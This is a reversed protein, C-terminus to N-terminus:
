AAVRLPESSAHLADPYEAVLKRVDYAKFWCRRGEADKNPGLEPLNPHLADYQRWRDLRVLWWPTIVGKAASMNTTHGYFFLDGWGEKLKPYECPGGTERRCTVTVEYYWDGKAYGPTRLRSAIRQDKMKFVMLDTCRKQDEDMPAEELLEPGVINRVQPIFARQWGFSQRFTTTM